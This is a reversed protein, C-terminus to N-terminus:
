SLLLKEASHELVVVLKSIDTEELSVNVTLRISPAPRFHEKDLLYSAVVIVVGQSKCQLM